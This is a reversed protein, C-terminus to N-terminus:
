WRQGTVERVRRDFEDGGRCAMERIRLEFTAADLNRNEPLAPSRASWCLGDTAISMQRAFITAENRIRRVQVAERILRDFDNDSLGDTANLFSRLNM